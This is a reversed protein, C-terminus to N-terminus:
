GLYFGCVHLELLLIGLTCIRWDKKFPPIFMNMPPSKSLFNPASVIPIVMWLKGWRPFWGLYICGGVQVINILGLLANQCLRIYSDGSYSLLAECICLCISTAYLQVSFQTPHCTYKMKNSLNKFKGRGMHNDRINTQRTTESLPKVSMDALMDASNPSDSRRAHNSYLSSQCLALELNLHFSSPDQGLSNRPESAKLVRPCTRGSMRGLEGM